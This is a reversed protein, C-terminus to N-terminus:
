THVGRHFKTINYQILNGQMSYIAFNVPENNESDFEVTIKNTFPNPYYNVKWEPNDIKEPLASASLRLRVGPKDVTGSFEKKLPAVFTEQWLADGAENLLTLQLPIDKNKDTQADITILGDKPKISLSISSMGLPVLEDDISFINGFSKNNSNWLDVSLDYSRTDALPISIDTPKSFQKQFAIKENTDTMSVQWLPDFCIPPTPCLPNIVWDVDIGTWCWDRGDTTLGFGNLDALAPPIITSGGCGTKREIAYDLDIDAAERVTKWWVHFEATSLNTFPSYANSEITCLSGRYYEYSASNTCVLLKGDREYLGNPHAMGPAGLRFLTFATGDYKYIAGAGSPLYSAILLEGEYVLLADAIGTIKAGDPLTVTETVRGDSRYLTPILEWGTYFAMGEYVALDSYDLIGAPTEAIETVTTGDFRTIDTDSHFYVMESGPLQYVERVISLPLHFSPIDIVTSGDFRKIFVETDVWPRGDFRHDAVYLYQDTAYLATIHNVELSPIIVTLTSGDFSVLRGTGEFEVVSYIKNQFVAVNSLVPDTIPSPTILGDSFQYLSRPCGYSGCATVSENSLNLYIISNLTPLTKNHDLTWTNINTAGFLGSISLQVGDRLPYDYSIRSTEDFEYFADNAAVYAHHGITTGNFALQGHGSLTFAYDVVRQALVGGLTCAMALILLSFKKM